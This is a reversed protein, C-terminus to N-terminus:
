IRMVFTDRQLEYSELLRRLIVTAFLTLLMTLAVIAEGDRNGTPLAPVVSAGM